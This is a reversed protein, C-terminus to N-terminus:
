FKGTQVCQYLEQNERHCAIIQKLLERRQARPAKRFAGPNMRSLVYRIVSLNSEGVHCRGVIMAIMFDPIAFM